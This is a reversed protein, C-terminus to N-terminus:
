ALAVSTTLPLLEEVLNDTIAPWGPFKAHIIVIRRAPDVHVGLPCGEIMWTRPSEHEVGEAIIMARQVAKKADSNKDPDSILEMAKKSVLIELRNTMIVQKSDVRRLV